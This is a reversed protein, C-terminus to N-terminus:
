IGQSGAALALDFETSVAERWPLVTGGLGRLFDEVGGNFAHPAVTFVVHIRLDARLLTFIDQLRQGYVLTHVVVLVRKCDPLTGWHDQDRHTRGRTSRKSSRSSRSPISSKPSKSSKSSM